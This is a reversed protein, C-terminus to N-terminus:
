CLRLHTEANKFEFDLHNLYELHQTTFLIFRTGNNLNEALRNAFFRIESCLFYCRVDTKQCRVGSGQVRSVHLM